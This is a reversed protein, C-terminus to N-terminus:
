MFITVTGNFANHTRGAKIDFLQVKDVSTPWTHTDYLKNCYLSITDTSM